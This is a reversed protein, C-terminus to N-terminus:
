EAAEALPDKPPEETPGHDGTALNQRVKLVMVKANTLQKTRQLRVKGFPPLNLERDNALAEGMEALAAEIAPKVWKKKIGSRETAREILEKKRMM